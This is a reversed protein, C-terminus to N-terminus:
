SWACILCLSREAQIYPRRRGAHTTTCFGLAPFMDQFSSFLDIFIISNTIATTTITIPAPDAMFGISHAQRFEVMFM